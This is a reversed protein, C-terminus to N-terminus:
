RYLKDVAEINDILQAVHEATTDSRVSIDSESHESISDWRAKSWGSVTNRHRDNKLMVELEISLYDRFRTLLRQIIEPPLCAPLKVPSLTSHSYQANTVTGRMETVVAACVPCPPKTVM